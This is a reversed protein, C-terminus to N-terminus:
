YLSIHFHPYASEISINKGEQLDGLAQPVAKFPLFLNAGVIGASIIYGHDEKSAVCGSLAFGPELHKLSIAKNVYSSRLSLALKKKNGNGAGEEVALVFVRVMQHETLYKKIDISKAIKKANMSAGGEEKLSAVERFLVDSVEEIEISGLVGGPLSVTARQGSINLVYGLALCGMQYKGFSINDIHTKDDHTKTMGLGLAQGADVAQFITGTAGTKSKKSKDKSIDEIRSLRKKSGFLADDDNTSLKSAKGSVSSTGRPFASM